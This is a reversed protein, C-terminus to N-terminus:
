NCNKKNTSILTDNNTKENFSNNFNLVHPGQKIDYHFTITKNNIQISENNNIRDNFSTDINLDITFHEISSDITNTKNNTSLLNNHNIKDDFSSDINLDHTIQQFSNDITTKKNNESTLVKNNTKDDFSDDISSASISNPGWKPGNRATVRIYNHNIDSQRPQEEIVHTEWIQAQNDNGFMIWAIDVKVDSPFPSSDVTKIRLIAIMPRGSEECIPMFDRWIHTELRYENGDMSVQEPASSLTTWAISADEPDTSINTAENPKTYKNGM